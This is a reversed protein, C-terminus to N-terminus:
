FMLNQPITEFIIGKRGKVTIKYIKLLMNTNSFISVIPKFLLFHLYNIIEYSLLYVSSVKPNQRSHFREM